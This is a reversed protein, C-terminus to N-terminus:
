LQLKEKFNSEVQLFTDDQMVLRMICVYILKSGYVSRNTEHLNKSFRPRLICRISSKNQLKFHEHGRGKCKWQVYSGQALQHTYNHGNIYCM